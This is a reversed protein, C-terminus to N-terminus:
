HPNEMELRADISLAAAAAMHEMAGNLNQLASTMAVIQSQAILIKEDTQSKYEHLLKVLRFMQQELETLRQKDSLSNSV